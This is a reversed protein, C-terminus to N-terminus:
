ALHCWLYQRHGSVRKRQRRKQMFRVRTSKIVAASFFFRALPIILKIPRVRLVGQLDGEFVVTDNDFVPQLSLNGTFHGFFPMVSYIFACLFGTDSPDGLGIRVDGSFTKIEICKFIDRILFKAQKALEGNGLIENFDGLKSLREILGFEGRFSGDKKGSKKEINRIDKRFAGFFWDLSCRFSPSQSSDWIFSLVFPISLLLIFAVV